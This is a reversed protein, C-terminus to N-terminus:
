SVFRQYFKNSAEPLKGQANEMNEEIYATSPEGLVKYM